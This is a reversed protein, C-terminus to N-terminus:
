VLLRTVITLSGPTRHVLALSLKGRIHINVIRNWRKITNQAGARKLYPVDARISSKQCM